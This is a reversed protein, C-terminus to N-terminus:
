EANSPETLNDLLGEKFNKAVEHRSIEKPWIVNGDLDYLYIDQRDYKILIEIVEDKKSPNCILGCIKDAPIADVTSEFEDYHTEIFQGYPIREAHFSRPILYDSRIVAALKNYTYDSPGYFDLISTSRYGSTGSRIRPRAFSIFMPFATNPYSDFKYSTSRLRQLSQLGNELILSLDQFDFGHIFAPIHDQNLDYPIDKSTTSKKSDMILQKLIEKAYNTEERSWYGWHLMGNRDYDDKEWTNGVRVLDEPIVGPFLEDLVEYYTKENEKQEQKYVNAELYSPRAVKCLHRALRRSVSTKSILALATIIDEGTLNEM